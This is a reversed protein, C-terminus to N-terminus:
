HYSYLCYMSDASKSSLILVRLSSAVFILASFKIFNVLVHVSASYFSYSIHCTCTLSAVCTLATRASATPLPASPALPEAPPLHCPKTLTLSNLTLSSWCIRTVTLRPPRTEEIFICSELKLPCCANLKRSDERQQRLLQQIILNNLTCNNNGIWYNNKM